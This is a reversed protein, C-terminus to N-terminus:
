RSNQDSRATYWAIDLLFRVSSTATDSGQPGTAAGSMQFSTIAMDPFRTRLEHMILVVQPFSGTGSLQLPITDLLEGHVATGVVLQELQVGGGVVTRTVEEQRTALGDATHLVVSSRRLRESTTEIALKAGTYEAQTSALQRRSEALQDAMRRQDDEAAFVPRIGVWYALLAIAGVVSCAVIDVTAHRFRTQGPATSSM